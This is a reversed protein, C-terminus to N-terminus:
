VLELLLWSSLMVPVGVPPVKVRVSLPWVV